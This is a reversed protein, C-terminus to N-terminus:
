TKSSLLARVQLESECLIVENLLKQADSLKFESIKARCELVRGPVGSLKQYGMAIWLPLFESLTGQEGCIGLQLGVKKAEQAIQNMMRIFGLQYPHYLHSLASNMRDAAVLYQLLDNTGVSVFSVIQSLEKMEWVLSPIEVMVGLRYNPNVSRGSEDALEKVCEKLLDSVARAEQANCVMPVMISLNGETNALLMAKLQTKFFEPHQLCYRVARLGLFPNEEKPFKLYPIIKDGGVDLTRIVVEKPAMVKLVEAYQARQEELSPPVTKEMFLFETRFLGIGEADGKLVSPLDKPSGINAYLSIQHGDLTQTPRGRYVDFGDKTRKQNLIQQQFSQRCSEESGDFILGSEGDVALLSEKKIKETAGEVGVIAPIGLTRALIATHSNPGGKETILAMVNKRDLSMTQSPTFDEAVFVSPAICLHLDSKLSPDIEALLQQRLDKLDLAREKLYDSDANAFIQIHTEIVEHVAEMSSKSESRIADLIPGVMEEDQLMMQHAEFIESAEQSVEKLTKATLSKLRVLVNAQAQRFKQVEADVDSKQFKSEQSQARIVWVPGLAYGDSVGLGQFLSPFNFKSSMKLWFKLQRKHLRQM